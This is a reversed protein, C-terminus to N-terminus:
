FRGTFRLWLQERVNVKRRPELDPDKKTPTLDNVDGNERPNLVVLTEKEPEEEDPSKKDFGDKADFGAGKAEDGKSASSVKGDFGVKGDTKKPPMDDKPRDEKKKFPNDGGDKGAAM